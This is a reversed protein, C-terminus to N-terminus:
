LKKFNKFFNKVNDYREEGLETIEKKFSNINENGEIIENVTKYIINIKDIIRKNEDFLQKVTSTIGPIKLLLLDECIAFFAIFQQDLQYQNSNLVVDMKDKVHEMYLKESEIM